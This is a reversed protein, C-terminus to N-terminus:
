KEEFVKNTSFANQRETHRTQAIRNITCALNIPISPNTQFPLNEDGFVLDHYKVYGKSATLRREGYAFIQSATHAQTLVFWIDKTWPRIYLLLAAFYTGIVNRKFSGRSRPKEEYM